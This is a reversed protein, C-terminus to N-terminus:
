QTATIEISAGPAYTFATTATLPTGIFEDDAGLSTNVAFSASYTVVAELATGAPITRDQECALNARCGDPVTEWIRGDWTWRQQAGPALEEVTAIARGCVACAQCWNCDCMECTNNVPLSRGAQVLAWYEQSSFGFAQIYITHGTSNTFVFSVLPSPGDAPADGAADDLVSADAVSGADDADSDTGDAAADTSIPGADGGDAPGHPKGDSSCAGAFVVAIVLGASLFRMSM